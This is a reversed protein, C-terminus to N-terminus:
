AKRRLKAFGGYRAVLALLDPRPSFSTSEITPIKKPPRPIRAKVPM